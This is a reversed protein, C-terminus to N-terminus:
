NHYIPFVQASTSWAADHSRQRPGKPGLSSLSVVLVATIQLSVLSMYLFLSM